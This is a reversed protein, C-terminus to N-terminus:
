GKALFVERQARWDIDVSNKAIVATANVSARQKGTLIADVIDPALFALRVVRSVYSDNAGEAAALATIDMEGSALKAWWGRAKVLLKALAPDPLTAAPANGGTHILRVAMGSRALRVQASLTLSPPADPEQEGGLTTALMQTSVEMEVRDPYIRVQAVLSRVLSYHRTRVSSSAESCCEVMRHLRDPPLNMWAKAFLTLPDDLAEALQNVVLSEIERAAIRIGHNTSGAGGHHLSRSVYYRYRVKGKCAHAAVLAEGAEDVIVGALLSPSIARLARREGQLNETLRLQAREWTDEDIIADHQGPYIKGQYAIKGRYIPNSLIKYIQGRTFRCDGFARGTSATRRPTKIGEADLQEAVLRVNGLDFYRQYIDRILTAHEEVIALSRGNPEYGLPPNGGMWMGKAKSASIKDRIREATVEREFQAFSLLMNLTLRGMSTTTNFSQTISVFSTGAKDFAEVLKAFDLLSRTLRDVKYVVIIDITGIAIDALLRQLAPRELSGGSLGGDDYEDPILNWGESAQSLVYATCAERQAHLSNFDQELGEESSKRTYIACRVQKM